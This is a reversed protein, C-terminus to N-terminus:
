KEDKGKEEIQKKFDAEIAAAKNHYNAENEEKTSGNAPIIVLPTVAGLGNKLEKGKSTVDMHQKPQGVVRTMLHEIRAMNNKRLDELFVGLYLRKLPSVKPNHCMEELEDFSHTDLIEILEMYLENTLSKFRNIASGNKGEPNIVDGKKLPKLNKLSKPNMKRKKTDITPKKKAM